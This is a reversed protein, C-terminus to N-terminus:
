HSHPCDKGEFQLRACSENPLRVVGGILTGADDFRAIIWSLERALVRWEGPEATYSPLWEHAVVHFTHGDWAVVDPADAAGFHLQPMTM